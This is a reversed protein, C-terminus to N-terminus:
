REMAPGSESQEVSGRWSQVKDKAWGYWEGAYDSVRQTYSAVKDFWGDGSEPTIMMDIHGQKEIQRDFPLTAREVMDLQEREPAEGKAQAHFAEKGMHITPERLIGQEELSRHDIRADSGAAELAENCYTAWQERWTEVLEDSNWRREKPGFGDPGVSRMTLLIHVHPNTLGDAAQREHMCVDAVMGLKVFQDEAYRRVLESNQEESLERPLAIEVERALQATARRTSTDEKSEVANWLTERETVLEPAAGEPALIFCPGVGSKRSYDHTEENREDRLATGSRYAAAAVVKHGSGRGLVNVKLHFIAMAV